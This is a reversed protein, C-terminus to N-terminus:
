NYIAKDTSMILDFAQESNKGSAILKMYDSNMQKLASIVSESSTHAKNGGIGAWYSSGKSLRIVAKKATRTTAYPIGVSAWIKAIHM